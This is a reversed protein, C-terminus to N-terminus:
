IDTCHLSLKEKLVEIRDIAEQCINLAGILNKRFVGEYWSRKLAIKADYFDHLDTDGVLELAKQLPAETRDYEGRAAHISYRTLNIKLKLAVPNCAKPIGTQRCKENFAEICWEAETYMGRDQFQEAADVITDWLQRGHAKNNNYNNNIFYHRWENREGENLWAVQLPERGWVIKNQDDYYKVRNRRFNRYLFSMGSGFRYICDLFYIDPGDFQYGFFIIPWSGKPIPTNNSCCLRSYWEKGSFNIFYNNGTIGGNPGFLGLNNKALFTNFGKFRNTLDRSSSLLDNLHSGGSKTLTGHGVGYLNRWELIDRFTSMLGAIYNSNSNLNSNLNSSSNSNKYHERIYYVKFGISSVTRRNRMIKDLSQQFGQDELCVAFLYSVIAQVLNTIKWCAAELNGEFMVEKLGVYEYAIPGPLRHIEENDLWPCSGALLSLENEILNKGEGNELIGKKLLHDGPLNM